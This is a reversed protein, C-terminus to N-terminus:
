AATRPRNNSRRKYDQWRCSINEMIVARLLWEAMTPDVCNLRVWGSAVPGVVTIDSVLRIGRSIEEVVAQQREPQKQIEAASGPELLMGKHPPGGAMALDCFTDWIEGWAVRDDSGYKLAASGMSVPEIEEYRDQYEEPLITKLRAQLSRFAAEEESHINMIKAIVNSTSELFGSFSTRGM